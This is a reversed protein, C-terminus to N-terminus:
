RRKGFFIYGCLAFTFVVVMLQPVFNNSTMSSLVVMGGPSFNLLDGLLNDPDIAPREVAAMQDNAQQMTDAQNSMADGAQDLEGNNGFVSALNNVADVISSGTDTIWRGIRNWWPMTDTVLTIYAGELVFLWQVDNAASRTNPDLDFKLRIDKNKLDVGSLDATLQYYTVPWVGIVTDDQIIEYNNFAGSTVVDVPVLLPNNTGQTVIQLNIDPNYQSGEFVALLFTISSIDDFALSSSPVTLNVQTQILESDQVSQIGYLDFSTGVKNVIHREHLNGSSYFMGSVDASINDLMYSSDKFGSASSIYISGTYATSFTIDFRMRSVTSDITVRYQRYNGYAGLYTMEKTKNNSYYATVTQPKKYSFLTIYIEKYQVDFPNNWAFSVDKYGDSYETPSILSETYLQDGKYFSFHYGFLSVM